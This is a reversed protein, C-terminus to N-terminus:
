AEGVYDRRNSRQLLIGKGRTDQDSELCTRCRSADDPAPIWENRRRNLQQRQTDTNDCRQRLLILQLAPCPGGVLRVLRLYLGPPCAGGERASREKVSLVSGCKHAIHCRHRCTCLRLRATAGLEDLARHKLSHYRQVRVDIYFLVKVGPM